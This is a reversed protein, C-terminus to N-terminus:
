NSLDIWYRELDIDEDPEHVTSEYVGGNNLITRRSGENGKICTILVRDIGLERCKPLATKLMLTAYGKRRESPVVSYGIHGGFKELYGNFYHRIQIMGVIKRDEERVFMYQTSPVRGHPTNNQDNFHDIWDQPNEYKRLSGTGDMSDGSELFEKRYARIQEEFEISLEVLRMGSQFLDMYVYEDDRKFETFGCKEYVHRARANILKTRLHIRKLGIRNFWYDTLARVAETGYGHNQMHATIAIGLEGESDTPNRLESNGIFRGSKKELMSYVPAKDKLKGKVWCIEQELTYSKDMGGIFRNVNEYDNVMVLYDNVLSESVEVFRINDSEFLQNM